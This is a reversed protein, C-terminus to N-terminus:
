RQDIEYEYEEIVTNALLGECMKVLQRDAEDGTIDGLDLEILKGIRVEEVNTYGLKGLANKIANGQPDAISKRLTVYVRAKMRSGGNTKNIRNECIHRRLSSGYRHICEEAGVSVYRIRCETMEEIYKIYAAAAAPLDEKKRCFSIDCKWGDMLEFVPKAKLLRDGTPFRDTREGEIEYAVCVPIKEMYSLVDLKTLAIEDAGQVKIGYRSAPIDFAGM